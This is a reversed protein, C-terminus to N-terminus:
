GCCCGGSRRRANSPIAGLSSEYGAEDLVEIMRTLSATAEDHQVRVTGERLKVDIARIGELEGVVGEIHRVCSMCTMGDVNLITEQTSM